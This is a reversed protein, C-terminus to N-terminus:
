VVSMSRETTSVLRRQKEGLSSTWSDKKKQERELKASFRDRDISIDIAPKWRM